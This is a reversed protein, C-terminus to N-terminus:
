DKICCIFIRFFRATNTRRRTQSNEEAEINPQKKKIGFKKKVEHLRNQYFDVNDKLGKTVTSHSQLESLIKNNQFADSLFKLEEYKVGREHGYYYAVCNIAGAVVAFGGVIALGVGEETLNGGAVYAGAIVAANFCSQVLSDSDMLMEKKVFIGSKDLIDIAISIRHYFSNNTSILKDYLIDLRSSDM